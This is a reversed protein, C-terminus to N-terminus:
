ARKRRLLGLGALGLGLLVVTGPEPVAALTADGSVQVRLGTLSPDTENFITYTLTNLGDLAFGLSGAMISHNSTFASFCTAGAPPIGTVSGCSLITHGNLAASIDNDAAIDLFLTLTSSVFGALSFTSTVTYSGAPYLTGAVSGPALWESAGAGDPVYTSVAHETVNTTNALPGSFVYNLDTVGFNLLSGAAGQCNALNTNLGSCVGTSWLGIPSASLSTALVGSLIAALVFSKRLVSEEMKMGGCNGPECLDALCLRNWADLEFWCLVVNSSLFAKQQNKSKIQYQTPAGVVIDLPRSFARGDPKLV